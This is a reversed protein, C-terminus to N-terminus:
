NESSQGKYLGFVKIADDYLAEIRSASELAEAKAELLKNEKELKEAELRAKPSGMKLFHVIEQSSATGDALRQMALEYSLAICRDEMGKPTTPPAGYPSEITTKNKKAM